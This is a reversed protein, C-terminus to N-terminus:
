YACGFGRSWIGRPAPGHMQARRQRTQRSSPQLHILDCRISWTVDRHALRASSGCFSGPLGAWSDLHSSARRESPDFPEDRLGRRAAGGSSRSLLQQEVDALLEQALAHESPSLALVRLASHLLAAALHPEGCASRADAFLVLARFSRFLGYAEEALACSERADGADAAADARRMLADHRRKRTGDEGPKEFPPEPLLLAEIDRQAVGNCMVDLYSSSITGRTLALEMTACNETALTQPFRREARTPPRRAREGQPSLPRVDMMTRM